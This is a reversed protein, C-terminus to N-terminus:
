EKEVDEDFIVVKGGRKGSLIRELPTYGRYAPCLKGRARIRREHDESGYGKHDGLGYGPYEAAIEVMRRDRHTKALVSAASVAPVFLDANPSNAHEFGPVKVEGDILVLAKPVRALVQRLADAFCRRLAAGLGDRDIEDVEASVIAHPLRALHYVLGERAAPTLKKSDTLGPLNWGKPTAAVGVTVPGAYAGFGVEDGGVSLTGEPSAELAARYALVQPPVARTAV